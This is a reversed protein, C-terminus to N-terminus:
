PDPQFDSPPVRVYKKMGDRAILAQKRLEEIKDVSERRWEDQKRKLQSRDRSSAPRMDKLDQCQRYYNELDGFTKSDVLQAIKTRCEIWAELSVPLAQGGARDFERGTAGDLDALRKHNHDMEARLLKLLGARERRRQRYERVETFLFVLLAGIAAGLLTNWDLVSNGAKAVAVAFALGSTVIGSVGARSHLHMKWQHM